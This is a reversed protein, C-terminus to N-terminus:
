FDCDCSCVVLIISKVDELVFDELDSFVVWLFDREIDESFNELSDRDSEWCCFKWCCLFWLFGGGEVM